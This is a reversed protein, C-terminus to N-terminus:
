KKVSFNTFSNLANGFSSKIQELSDLPKNYSLLLQLDKDFSSIAEPYYTLILIKSNNVDLAVNTLVRSNNNETLSFANKVNTSFTSSLDIDFTLRIVNIIKDTEAYLLAPSAEEPTKTRGIIYTTWDSDGGYTSVKVRYSYNKGTPLDIDNLYPTTRNSITFSKTTGDIDKREIIYSLFNVVQHAKFSLILVSKLLHLM